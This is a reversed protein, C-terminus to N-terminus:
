SEKVHCTTSQENACNRQAAVWRYVTDMHRMAGPLKSLWVLPHAWWVQRAVAIVAAAGGFQQGDSLLFRLERLLEDASLGLLSGVRPDQLPAVSFGRQNLSPSLFRVIKTCFGCDADYFLWGRAHRGKRDTYEDALSIM